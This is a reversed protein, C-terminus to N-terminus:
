PVDALEEIERIEALVEEAIENGKSLMEKKPIDHFYPGKGEAEFEYVSKLAIGISIGVLEVSNDDKKNLYNQELIHSLIRPNKEHEKKKAEPSPRDPNLDDILGKVFKEDLYQGEEYFYKEPDYVETSHRRLGDEMEDIDLRNKVQGTIVGRAESPRFPLIM